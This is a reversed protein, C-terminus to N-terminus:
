RLPIGLRLQYSATVLEAASILHNAKPTPSVPCYVYDTISCFVYSTYQQQACTM